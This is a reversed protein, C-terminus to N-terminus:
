SGRLYDFRMRGGQPPHSEAAECGTEAVQDAAIGSQPHRTLGVWSRRNWGTRNGEGAFETRYIWALRGSAPLEDAVGARDPTASGPCPPQTGPRATPGVM